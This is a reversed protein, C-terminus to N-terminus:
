VAVKVANALNKATSILEKIRAKIEEDQLKFESFASGDAYVFSPIILCRFDLMLSNALGMISMYSSRGGAACLFGIVKNEWAQGTMEVLNKLAANSSYNYVPTALLLCQAEKIKNTLTAVNPHSYASDGDCLPLPYDILDIFEAKETQHLLEYCEQALVRSKSQPNLSSSIVLYKTTM